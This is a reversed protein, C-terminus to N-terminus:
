KSLEELLRELRTLHVVLMAPLNAASAPDEINGISDLVRGLALKADPSLQGSRNCREVLEQAKTLAKVLNPIGATDAEERLSQLGSIVPDWSSRREPDLAGLANAVAQANRALARREEIGLDTSRRAGAQGKDKSLARELAQPLDRRMSDKTVTQVGSMGSAASQLTDSDSGSILVTPLDRIRDWSRLLSIFRDGRMVPMNLDVVVAEIGQSVIVQTAGIPSTLCQVHYGANAIVDRIAELAIEDDDIVLVKGRTAAKGRSHM